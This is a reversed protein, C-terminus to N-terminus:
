LKKYLMPLISHESKRTSKKYGCNNRDLVKTYVRLRRKDLGDIYIYWKKGNSAKSIEQEIESLAELALPIVKFSPNKNTSVPAAWVMSSHISNYTANCSFIGAFIYWKGYGYHQAGMVLEQRCGNHLPKVVLYENKNYWGTKIRM